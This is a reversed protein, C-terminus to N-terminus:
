PRDQGPEPEPEPRAFMGSLGRASAATPSQPPAEASPAEPQSAKDDVADDPEDGDSLATAVPARRGVQIQRPPGASGSRWPTPIRTPRPLPQVGGLRARGRFRDLSDADVDSASVDIRDSLRDPSTSLGAGSRLDVAEHPVLRKGPYRYDVLSQEEESSALVIYEADDQEGAHQNPGDSEESPASAGTAAERAAATRAPATAGSAETSSNRDASPRDASPCDASSRDASSTEALRIERRPLRSPAWLSGVSGSATAFGGPSRSAGPALTETPLGEAVPRNGANPPQEV